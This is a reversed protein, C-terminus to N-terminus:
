QHVTVDPLAAQRRSRHRCAQFKVTNHLDNWIFPIKMVSPRETPRFVADERKPTVYHIHM